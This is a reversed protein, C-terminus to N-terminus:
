LSDVDMVSAAQQTKGEAVWADIRAKLDDAPICDELKLSTTLEFIGL